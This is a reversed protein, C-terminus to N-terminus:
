DPITALYKGIEEITKRFHRLRHSTDECRLVEMVAKGIRGAEWSVGIKVGSAEEFNKVAFQLDELARKTEFMDRQSDREIRAKTEELRVEVEAQVLPEVLANLMKENKEHMRRLISAIFLRDLPKAKLPPAQKVVRLGKSSPVYLGWTKPIEEEKAVGEEAALWWRDCFKFIVEAKQPNKLEKLWDGRSKKVEIGHVEMGRSPWLGM